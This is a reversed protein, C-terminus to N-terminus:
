VKIPSKLHVRVSEIVIRPRLATAALLEGIQGEAASAVRDSAALVRQRRVSEQELRSVAEAIEPQLRELIESRSADEVTDVMKGWQGIQLAARVVRKGALAEGNM